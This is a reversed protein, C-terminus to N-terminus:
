VWVTGACCASNEYRLKKWTKEQGWIDLFDFAWYKEGSEILPYFYQHKLHVYILIELHKEHPVLIKYMTYSLKYWPLIAFGNNM